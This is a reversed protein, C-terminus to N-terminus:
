WFHVISGLKSLLVWFNWPLAEWGANQDLPYTRIFYQNSFLSLSFSNSLTISKFPSLFAPKWRVSWAGPKNYGSPKILIKIHLTYKKPFNDEICVRYDRTLFWELFLCLNDERSDIIPLHRHNIKTIRMVFYGACFICWQCLNLERRAPRFTFLQPVPYM